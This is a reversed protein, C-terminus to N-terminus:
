GAAIAIIRLRHLNIIWSFTREMRGTCRVGRTWRAGHGNMRAVPANSKTQHMEDVETGRLQRAAARGAAVQQAVVRRAAGPRAADRRAPARVPARALAVRRAM